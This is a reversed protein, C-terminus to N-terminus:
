NMNIRDDSFVPINELYQNYFIRTPRPEVCINNIQDRELDASLRHSLADAIKDIINKNEHTNGTNLAWDLVRDSFSAVTPKKTKRPRPGGYEPHVTRPRLGYDSTGQKPVTQLNETQRNLQLAESQIANDTGNSSSPNMTSQSPGNDSVTEPNRTENNALAGQQTGRAVRMHPVYQETEEPDDYWSFQYPDFVPNDEATNPTIPSSQHQGSVEPITLDPRRETYDFIRDVHVRISKAFPKKIDQITYNLDSHKEIVRFPGSFKKSFARGTSQNTAPTYLYVKQGLEFSKSIAVKDRLRSQKTAATELNQYVNRYVFQMKTIGERVYNDCPFYHVQPTQELLHFPLNLDRNFMIFSPKEHITDHYSNNYMFNYYGLYTDWDSTTQSLCTLSNKISKNIRESQGNTSPRYPTTKLKNIKLEKALETFLKSQFNTGLDSLISHPLGFTLIVEMLKSAITKATMDPLAFLMSYKSFHDIAGLIYRNGGESIPLPGLIDMSLLEMPYSPTQFNQLPSKTLPFGKKEICQKCSNSFNKIDRYMNKWFYKEKISRYTKFFAYHVTESGELVYPILSTPVVIQEFYEERAARKQRFSIRKLLGKEMFYNDAKINHDESNNELYDIVKKLNPDNHQERIFVEINPIDTPNTNITNVIDRSLLDGLFNESGKIHEFDFDYNSLELLWRSLRNAPSELKILYNLSRCDSLIRFKRGYLYTKYHRISLLIAYTELQIAPWKQEHPKLKHSFYSIPRLVNNEDKQLLAGGVAIKSADTNLFFPENFNPHKLMVDSLLKSKIFDFAKQADSTWKFKTKNKTLETLPYMIESFNEIFDRYYGALGNFRRLKKLSTPTPFHEISNLNDPIPRLSDKDVVHGLYKIQSQLFRCKKPSLTLGYHRFREFVLRLKRLSDDISSCPIIVDDIYASINESQLGNLMTDAIEQFIQPSNKMGFSLHKYQFNGYPSSFATLHRDEERLKVQHFSSNMDLSNFYSAGRLSNLIDSILPLKYTSSITIQNLQRYDIVLRFEDQNKKRVLILPFAYRSSSKEIIGASKLDRIQNQVHDRLAVPIPFARTQIPSLDTIEIPPAEIICEGITQLSVSFIDSFEFILKLLKHKAEIPVGTLDFHEPTLEQRRIARKEERLDIDSDIQVIKANKNIHVNKTSLNNIVLSVTGNAAVTCISNHIEIDHQSLLPVVLVQSGPTIQNNLKADVVSSQGPFLKLKRTLKGFNDVYIINIKGYDYKNIPTSAGRILVTQTAFNIQCQFRKLFDYGLIFDYDSSFPAETILVPHKLHKSGVLFNIKISSTIKIEDGSVSSIKINPNTNIHEISSPSM